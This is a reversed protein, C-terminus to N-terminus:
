RMTFGDAPFKGREVSILASIRLDTVIAIATATIVFKSAKTSQCTSTLAVSATKCFGSYSM